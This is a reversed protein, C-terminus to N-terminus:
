LQWQLQAPDAFVIDLGSIIFTKRICIEVVGVCTWCFSVRERDARFKLRFDLRSSGVKNHENKEAARAEALNVM